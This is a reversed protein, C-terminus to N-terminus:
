AQGCLAVVVAGAMGAEHSLSLAMKTIGAERAVQRAQGTLHIDCWGGTQRRVEIGRWDLGRDPSRLVKLTAEKAAFRGALGAAMVAPVGRCCELEHPTFVRQLYRQGFRLMSDEVQQVEMLDIGVRVETGGPPSGEPGPRREEAV